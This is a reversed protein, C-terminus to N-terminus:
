KRGRDWCATEASIIGFEAIPINERKTNFIKAQKCDEKKFALSRLKKKRIYPGQRVTYVRLHQVRQL